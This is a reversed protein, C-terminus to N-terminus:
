ALRGDKTRRDVDPAITFNTIANHPELVKAHTLSGVRLAPTEKREAALYHKYHLPSKLLEKAGSYNLAHIADYEKRTAIIRGNKIPPLKNPM